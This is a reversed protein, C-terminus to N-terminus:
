EREVLRALEAAGEEREEAVTGVCDDRVRPLADFREYRVWRWGRVGGLVEGPEDRDFARAVRGDIRMSSVSRCSRVVCYGSSVGM